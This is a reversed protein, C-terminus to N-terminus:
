KTTFTFAGDWDPAPPNGRLVAIRELYLPYLKEGKEPLTALLDHLVAEAEDWRQGRYHVVASDFRQAALLTAEDVDGAFGLPAHISVAINKSKVRVKDIERCILDPVTARTQDGVIVLVVGLVIRLASKRLLSWGRQIFTPM